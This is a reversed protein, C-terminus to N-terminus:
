EAYYKLNSLIEKPDKFEYTTKEGDHVHRLGQFVIKDDPELYGEELVFVDELEYEYEILRQEVVGDEGVVYVYRHNLVEFTTRQPIVLADPLPHRILITGTQHHRLRGNPNPFDARFAVTGRRNDFDAEVTALKGPYPFMKDNALRLEISSIYNEDDKHAMYELYRSEPVYYYVWMESNDSLTTMLDGVEIMSGKRVHLQDMIGSYPANITAFDLEAAARKVEAQAKTLEAQKKKLQVLSVLDKKVLDKTTEVQIKALQAVGQAHKLAAEYLVPKIQFMPQGKEVHQGEKVMIDQLYGEVRSRVEIHRGSHIQCVYEETLVEDKVVPSTVVIKPPEEKQPQAQSRHCAPLALSAMLIVILIPLDRM